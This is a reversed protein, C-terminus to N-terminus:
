CASGTPAAEGRSEQLGFVAEEGGAIIFAGHRPRRLKGECEPAALLKIEKM